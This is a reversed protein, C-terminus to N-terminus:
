LPSTGCLEVKIREALKFASTPQVPLVLSPQVAPLSLGLGSLSAIGTLRCDGAAPRLRGLTEVAAM